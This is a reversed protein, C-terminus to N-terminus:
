QDGSKRMAVAAGKLNEIRRELYAPVPLRRRRYDDAERKAQVLRHEIAAVVAEMSIGQENM